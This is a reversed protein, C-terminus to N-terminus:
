AEINKKSLSTWIRLFLIRRVIMYFVPLRFIFFQIRDHTYKKKMFEFSFIHWSTLGESFFKSYVTRNAITIKSITFGQKSKTDMKKHANEREQIWNKQPLKKTSPADYYENTYINYAKSPLIINDGMTIDFNSDSWKVIGSFLSFLIRKFYIEKDNYHCVIIAHTFYGGLKNGLHILEELNEPKKIESLSTYPYYLFPLRNWNTDYFATEKKDQKNHIIQIYKTSGNFTWLRYEFNSEILPTVLIQPAINKYYLEFNNKEIADEAMWSSLKLKLNEESINKKDNVHYEYSEGHTSLITFKEPLNDFEISDPDTFHAILPILYKEGINDKVFDRVRYLDAFHSKLDTSDYLKLWQVKENYTRPTDFDIYKETKKLYWTNLRKKVNELRIKTYEVYYADSDNVIKTVTQIEQPSFFPICIDGHALDEKFDAGFKNLFEKKFEEAIRTLNWLYNQKKKKLYMKYIKKNRPFKEMVFNKIYEYEKCMAYVKGKNKVSSNPNDRRLRYYDKKTFWIRDALSYTQFYFGNDQYSAGPTENFRIKNKDLFSKRYIGTWIVLNTNFINIDQKSSSVKDYYKNKSDVNIYQFTREEPLGYFIKYNAKIFDINNKQAIHYQDEFMNCDIYDDSEVIAIYDGRAADLGLNLQHGYSKMNSNILRIRYDRQAYDNLIELTGDTSGADICIVEIDQLTQNLISDICEKIYKFSNLTPVLVSIAPSHPLNSVYAPLSTIDPSPFGAQSLYDLCLRSLLGKNYKWPKDPGGLHLIVAKSIIDELSMNKFNYNYVQSLSNRNLRNAYFPLFNYQWSSFIVNEGLVANLADQDMFGTDYNKKYEILKQSISDRRMSSLNLLMVGSNFYYKHPIAAKNMHRKNVFFLTDKIVAAYKNELNTNYFKSLDDQIITDSDIYLVKNEQPFIEPLFFKLLATSSVHRHQQITDKFNKIYISSNILKVKHKQCVDIFLSESTKNSFDCLIYVSYETSKNKKAFLSYISMLTLHTYNDDTIYIINIPTNM